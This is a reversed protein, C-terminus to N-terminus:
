FISPLRRVLRGGGNHENSLHPLLGRPLRQSASLSRNCHPQSRLPLDHDGTHGCVITSGRRHPEDTIREISCGARGRYSTSGWILAWAVALRTCTTKSENPKKDLRSEVDPVGLLWGGVSDAKRSLDFLFKVTSTKSM